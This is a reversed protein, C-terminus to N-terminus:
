QYQISKVRKDYEEQSMATASIAPIKIDKKKTDTSVIFYLLDDNKINYISISDGSIKYGTNPNIGFQKCAKLYLDTKGYLLLIISCMNFSQRINTSDDLTLYKMAEIGLDGYILPILIAIASQTHITLFDPIKIDFCDFRFKPIKNWIRIKNGNIVIHDFLHDYGENLCLEMVKMFSVKGRFVNMNLIELDKIDSSDFEMSKSLDYITGYHQAMDPNIPGQGSIINKISQVITGIPLDVKSKFPYSGDASPQTETFFDYWTNNKAILDLPDAQIRLAGIAIKAIVM